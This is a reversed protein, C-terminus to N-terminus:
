RFISTSRDWYTKCGMNSFKKLLTSDNAGIDIFSQTGNKLNKDIFTFFNNLSAVSGISSSSATHYNDSHYIFDQPFLNGLFCPNSESCFRLEQDYVTQFEFSNDNFRQYIETLPYDKFDILLETKSNNVIPSFYNYKTKVMM